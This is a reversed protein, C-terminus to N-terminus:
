ALGSGLLGMRTLRVRHDSYALLARNYPHPPSDPGLSRYPYGRPPSGPPDVDDDQRVGRHGARRLAGYRAQYRGSCRGPSCVFPSPDLEVDVGAPLEQVRQELGVLAQVRERTRRGSRPTRTSAEARRTTATPRTRATSRSSRPARARRTRSGTASCRTRAGGLGAGATNEVSITVTDGAVLSVSYWDEAQYSYPGMPLQTTDTSFPVGIPLPLATEATPGGTASAAAPLLALACAVLLCLGILRRM